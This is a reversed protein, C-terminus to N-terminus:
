YCISVTEKAITAAMKAAENAAKATTFKGYETNGNHGLVHFTGYKEMVEFRFPSCHADCVGCLGNCGDKVEKFLYAKKTAAM